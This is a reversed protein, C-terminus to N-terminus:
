QGKRIRIDGNFTKFSFEPGGGNITGLMAREARVRYRGRSGGSEVSPQGRAQLQVDFDTYIDGHSTELKVAARTSAPLTVDIDGNLSSFSMPKGEAVRTMSVVLDDNLAHAVVAGGVNTLRVGGNVNNAEIDGNVGEVTIDGGNVVKLTLSTNAPVQIDLHVPQSMSRASIKMENNEEDVSLGTSFNTLRRLGEAGRDGSRQRDRDRDRDWDRGRRDESRAVIVVDRGTHSRVSMSGNLLDARVAGPRNPDSFPVSVTDGETQQASISGALLWGVALVAALALSAGERRDRRGRRDTRRSNGPTDYDDRTKDNGFM